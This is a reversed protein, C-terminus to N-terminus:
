KFIGRRYILGCDGWICYKNRLYRMNIINTLYTCGTHSELEWERLHNLHFEFVQPSFLWRMHFVICFTRQSASCLFKCTKSKNTYFSQLYIEIQRASFVFSWGNFILIAGVLACKDYPCGSIVFYANISAWNLSLYIRVILWWSCHWVWHRWIHTGWQLLTHNM